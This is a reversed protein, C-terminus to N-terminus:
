AIPLRLSNQVYNSVASVSQLGPNTMLSRQIFSDPTDFPTMGVQTYIALPDLLNMPNLEQNIADLQNQKEEYEETLAEMEKQIDVLLESTYRSGAQQLATGAFTMETAFPLNVSSQSGYAGYMMAIVAIIAAWAVGLEEAAFTFLADAVVATLIAKAVFIGTAVLGSSIAVSLSTVFNTVAGAVVAFAMAVVQVVFLFFNSQYWKLKQVEFSNFMIKFSEFYLANADKTPLAKALAANLPIIMPTDKQEPASGSLGISGWLGTFYSKGSGHVNSAHCLGHVKIERYTNASTQKRLTVVNRYDEYTIGKTMPPQRYYLPDKSQIFISKDVHGVKGIVGNYDQIDIFAFGLEAKYTADQILISNLPPYGYPNSGNVWNLYASKNTTTRPYEDEFYEYLYKIGAKSTTHIDIGFIIYSNVISAVDPNNNVGEHLEEIKLGAYNLLKKSTKYLPTNYNSPGTLSTGNVRLPVVPFYYTQTPVSTGGDEGFNLEPYRFSRPYYTWYRINAPWDGDNYISGDPNTVYYDVNLYMYNLDSTADPTWVIPEHFDDWKWYFQTTIQNTGRRGYVVIKADRNLYYNQFEGSYIGDPYQWYFRRNTFGTAAPDRWYKFRSDMVLREVAIREANAKGVSAFKIVIKRGGQVLHPYEKALAAAITEYTPPSFGRSGEPLGNTYSDRAYEFMKDVNRVAFCNITADLMDPVIDRNMMISYLVSQKLYDPTDEILSQTDSAIYTRYEDFLGM